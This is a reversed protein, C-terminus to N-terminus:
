VKINVIKRIMIMGIFQFSLAIFILWHGMDTSFLQGMYDPNCLYLVGGLAIPLLGVIWGSMRGQATLTKVQRLIRFRERITTQLGDLVESLNGGTEKQILLATCFVQVDETNMRERFHNLAKSLEAGFTLEDAMIRFEDAVPDPMEEAVNQVAANLSQGSKVCSSLLDLADSFQETFKKVRMKVTVALYLYPAVAFALFAIPTLLPHLGKNWVVTLVAGFVGCGGCVALFSMVTLPLQAQRLRANLREAWPRNGFRDELMPIDSFAKRKVVERRKEKAAKKKQEAKALSDGLNYEQVQRVGQLRQRIRSTSNERNGILLWVGVGAFAVAFFVLGLILIQM